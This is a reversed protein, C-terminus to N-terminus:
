CGQSAAAESGCTPAPQQKFSRTNCLSPTSSATIQHQEPVSLLMSSNSTQTWFWWAPQEAMGDM